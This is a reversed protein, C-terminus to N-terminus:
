KKNAYKAVIAEIGTLQEKRGSVLTYNTEEVQESVQKDLIRLAIEKKLEIANEFDEFKSKFEAIEEESLKNSYTDLVSEKEEKVKQAKYNSLEELQAKLDAIEADKEALQSNLDPQETEEESKEEEEIEEEESEEESETEEEEEEESETETEETEEKESTEEEVEKEEVQENDTPIEVEEKNEEVEPVENELEEAIQDKENEEMIQGGTQNESANGLENKYLSFMEKLDESMSQNSPKHLEYFSSGEFCPEYEDGLVCLGFFEAFDYQYCFGVDDREIWEGSITEPNLEMSHSKGVIRSAIPYRGTWLIIDTCAYTRYVGDPDLSMEWKFNMDQPVFGYPKNQEPAVHALFDDSDADFYGVIPSGPLTAVLKEAIEDTIYSGNRNLGKYFIKLRAKSFASNNLPTLNGYVTAIFNTPTSQNNPM